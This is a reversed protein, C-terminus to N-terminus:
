ALDDDFILEKRRLCKKFLEMARDYKNRLTTYKIDLIGTIEGLNFNGLLRLTLIEKSTEDKFENICSNVLFWIEKKEYERDQLEAPDSLMEELTLEEGEQQNMFQNSSVTKIGRSHTKDYCTNHAIGFLWSSFRREKDFRGEIIGTIADGFVEIAVDGVERETLKLYRLKNWCYRFVEKWYRDM